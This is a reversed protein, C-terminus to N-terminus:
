VQQLPPNIKNGAKGGGGKKGVSRYLLFILRVSMNTDDYCCTLCSAIATKYSACDLRSILERTATKDTHARM